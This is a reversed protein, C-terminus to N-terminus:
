PWMRYEQAWCSEALATEPKRTLMTSQNSCLQAEVLDISLMDGLGVGMGALMEPPLEVIVDGSGDCTEQCKVTTRVSEIMQSGESEAMASGEFNYIAAHGIHDVAQGFATLQGDQGVLVLRFFCFRGSPTESCHLQM